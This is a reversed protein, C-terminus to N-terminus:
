YAVGAVLRAAGTIVYQAMTRTFPTDGYTLAIRILYDIGSEGIQDRPTERTRLIVVTRLGRIRRCFESTRCYESRQQVRQQGVASYQGPREWGNNGLKQVDAHSHATLM